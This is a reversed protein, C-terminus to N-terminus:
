SGLEATVSFERLFNHFEANLDLFQEESLPTGTIKQFQRIFDERAMDPTIVLHHAHPSASIRAFEAREMNYIFSGESFRLTRPFQNSSRADSYLTVWVSDDFIELRDIPPDSIVTVELRSCRSRALYLGVLGIRVEEHLKEHITDYDVDAASHRILYRARGSIGRLDRPDAIVARFEWEAKSLLLRAAAHRGAFGRFLYQRTGQLDQMMLKNFAPDPEETPEFIHTPFFERNMSRYEAALDRLAQRSEDILPTLMARQSATATVLTQGFGVVASVLTGTAVATILNKGTGPAMGSTVIM